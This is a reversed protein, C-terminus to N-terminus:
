DNRGGAIYEALAKALKHEPETLGWNGHGQLFEEPSATVPLAAYLERALELSLKEM